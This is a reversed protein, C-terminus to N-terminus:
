PNPYDEHGKEPKAAARFFRLDLDLRRLAAQLPGLHKQVVVGVARGHGTFGHRKVLDDLLNALGVRWFRLKQFLAEGLQLAGWLVRAGLGPLQELSQSGTAARDTARVREAPASPARYVSWRSSLSGSHPEPDASHWPSAPGSYRQAS